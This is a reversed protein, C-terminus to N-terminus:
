SNFEENIANKLEDDITKPQAETVLQDIFESDSSSSDNTTQDLKPLEVEQSEEAIEQPEEVPVETTTTDVKVINVKTEDEAVESIETNEQQEKNNKHKKRMIGSIVLCGIGLVLVVVSVIIEENTLSTEPAAVIMYENFVTMTIVSGEETIEFPYQTSDLEYGEPAKTEVYYYKGIALPITAEGFSDTTSCEVLDGDETYVCITADALVANDALDRKTFIITSEKENTISDTYHVGSETISFPHKEENIIYGEPAKTEIFYYEGKTFKDYYIKGSEDTIGTYILTDKDGDVKYIEITAGPVPNEGSLDTKTIEVTSYKENTLADKIIFNDKTIEFYHPEDNLIYGEAAETEAFYYEGYPLYQIFIEGKEDTKGQYYIKWSDDDQKQYITITTDPIPEGTSLDTKSILLSTPKNYLTETIFCGGDSDITFYHKSSDLGYGEAAELEVYYYTGAPIKETSLEGDKNTSGQFIKIDDEDYIAIEVNALPKNTGEERKYLKFTSFKDNEITLNVDTGYGDITFEHKSSDLVYGKPAVTEVVYYNGKEYEGFNIKNEGNSTECKLETGDEKYLCLTAGALKIDASVGDVKDVYVSSDIYDGTAMLVSPTDQPDAANAIKQIGDEDKTSAWIFLDKTQAKSYTRTLNVRINGTATATVILNNGEIKASCNTCSSVKFNSLVGNTDTVTISQGVPIIGANTGNFSPAKGHKAIDAEIQDMYKDYKHTEPATLSNSTTFYFQGSPYLTRWIMIQTIRYWWAETRGTYGYGYYMLLKVRETNAVAAVGNDTLNGIGEVTDNTFFNGAEWSTAPQVCYYIRGQSDTFPYEALGYGTYGNLKKIAPMYEGDPGKIYGSKTQYVNRTVREAFVNIIGFSAILTMLIGLFSFFVIKKKKSDQLGNFKKFLKSKKIKNVM